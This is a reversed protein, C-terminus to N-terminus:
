YNSVSKILRIKYSNISSVLVHYETSGIYKFDNEIHRALSMKLFVVTQLADVVEMSEINGKAYIELMSFITDQHEILNRNM